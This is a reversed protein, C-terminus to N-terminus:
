PQVQPMHFNGPGDPGSERGQAGSLGPPGVKRLTEEACWAQARTHAHPHTCQTTSHAHQVRTHM